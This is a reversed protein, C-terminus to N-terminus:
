TWLKLSVDICALFGDVEVWSIRNTQAEFWLKHAHGRENDDGGVGVTQM